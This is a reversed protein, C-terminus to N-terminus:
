DMEMVLYALMAERDRNIREESLPHNNVLEYLTTKKFFNLGMQPTVSALGMTHILFWDQNFEVSHRKLFAKWNHFMFEIPILEPSYPASYIIIAGAEEILAQVRPDLHISCNDMIVVSHAERRSFNGLTPVLCDRVYQVFRESSLPSIFYNTYTWLICLLITVYWYRGSPM